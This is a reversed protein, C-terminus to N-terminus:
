PWHTAHAPRPREGLAGALVRFPRTLRRAFIWAIPALLLLSVVLAILINRQWGGFFPRVPAVSLWRGDGQRVSAMLAPMPSSILAKRIVEAPETKSVMEFRGSGRQVLVFSSPLSATDSRGLIEATVGRISGTARVAGDPWIVRVDRPSRRLEVAILGELMTMRQGQPPAAIFRREFGPMPRHLAAIMDAASTRLAPPQPALIVIAATTAVSLTAVAVGFGGIAVLASPAQKIM